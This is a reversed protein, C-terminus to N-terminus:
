FRTTRALLLEDLLVMAAMAEVVPVARIAVCPDHRGKPELIVSEGRYNFTPVPYPRTPTPKFAVSLRIDEGTSVGGEIGGCHNQETRIRLESGSGTASTYTDIAERGYMAASKMGLGFEVGRAANISMMAQALRATLKDYVPSGLGAPVGRVILSVRGGVSDELGEFVSEYEDTLARTPAFFPSADIDARTAQVVYPDSMQVPGLGSLYALIEVGEARLFQEALAGAVVRTFTQRASARGGGRYERIGYKVFTTYDAHGPRFTDRLHVYDGSRTDQNCVMFAIPTGLTVGHEDLGSLWQVRDTERRQTTFRNRCPRRRDVASQVADLDLLWNAPCGDIIGGIAPGHSEGFDTLRFIHGFTNM